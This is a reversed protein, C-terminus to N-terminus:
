KTELPHFTQPEPIKGTFQEYTTRKDPSLTCYFDKSRDYKYGKEKIYSEADNIFSFTTIWHDPCSYPEISFLILGADDNLHVFVKEGAPYEDEIEHCENSSSDLKLMLEHNEKRLEKIESIVDELFGAPDASLQLHGCEYLDALNELAENLRKM